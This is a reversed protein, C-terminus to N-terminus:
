AKPPSTPINDAIQILCRAADWTLLDALDDNGAAHAEAILRMLTLLRSEPDEFRNSM